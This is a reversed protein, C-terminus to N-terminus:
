QATAEADEEAKRPAPALEFRDKKCRFLGEQQMVSLEHSLSSRNVGLYQAFEERDMHIRFVSEGTRAEMNRLFVLIRERLSRKYLVDIKYLKKINENALFRIVNVSLKGYLAGHQAGARMLVDYRFTLLEADKLCILRFPCRKTVTCAIDLGILDGEVYHQILEAHGGYSNKECLLKGKTVIAFFDIVAGEGALLEGAACSRLSAKSIRRILACEETRFGSFLRTRMMIRNLESETM